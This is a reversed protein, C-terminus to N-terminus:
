VKLDDAFRTVPQVGDFFGGCQEGINYQEVDSHRKEVSDFGCFFDSLAARL